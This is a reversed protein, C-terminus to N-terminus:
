KPFTPVVVFDMELFNALVAFDAAEFFRYVVPEPSMLTILEISVFQNMNKSLLLKKTQTDAFYILDAHCYIRM